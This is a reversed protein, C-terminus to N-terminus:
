IKLVLSHEKEPFTPTPKFFKKYMEEESFDKAYDRKLGPHWVPREYIEEDIPQKTNNKFNYLNTLSYINIEKQNIMDQLGPYEVLDQKVYPLFGKPNVAYKFEDWGMVLQMLKLAEQEDTEESIKHLWKKIKDYGIIAVGTGGIITMLGWGILKRRERSIEQDQPLFEQYLRNKM